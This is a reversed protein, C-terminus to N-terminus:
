VAGAAAATLGHGSSDITGEAAGGLPLKADLRWEGALHGSHDARAGPAWLLLLAALAAISGLCRRGALDSRPMPVSEPRESLVLASRCSPPLKSLTVALAVAAKLVRGPM